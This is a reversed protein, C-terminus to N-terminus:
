QLDMRDLNVAGSVVRLTVPGDQAITVRITRHALSPEVRYTHGAIEILAGLGTIAQLHHTGSRALFTASQGAELVWGGRYFARNITYPKPEVHGGDRAVHADEFEVRGGPERGYHFAIAIALSFVAIQLAAAAAAAKGSLPPQPRRVGFWIVLVVVVGAGVWAAHNVRIFSPFLRSFDSAYLRSLWEGVANEGNAEHFLRWPYVIGHIALGITWAAAVAIAGRPIRPWLWAAGLALVPMLFVLYRLPPAYNSFSEQRPLLYFIYLLSAFIGIRFGNPTERWRVLAALGCLYFPAQFAIGAMGDALLGGLGRAYSMPHAPVLERWSHISVVFMIVLPIALAILAIMRSRRARLGAVILGLAVLGFRLKLLVLAAVAPAWRQMRHARVGRLAEVFLFAAPVEPWMRTAYFLVPPAFAFFPFVARASDDPVGEDEMWRITSRVLLAGCIAIVALAGHLGGFTYGPAMLMSLFPSHRSYQEGSAGKPDDLFPALDTRGSATDRARYQNALDLDADRLMSETILLYYPEDGDVKWATAGIVLAYVIAAVIAARTASWRVHRGNALFLAFVTLELAALTVFALKADPAPLLRRWLIWAFLALTLQAAYCRLLTAGRLLILPVVALAVCTAAIV